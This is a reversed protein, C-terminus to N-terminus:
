IGDPKGHRQLRGRQHDPAYLGPPRRYVAGRQQRHLRAPRGDIYRAIALSVEPGAERAAAAAARMVELRQAHTTQAPSYLIPHRNEVTTEALTVADIVRKANVAAAAKGACDLLGREGTDNTYAYVSRTGDLVRVGAGHTRGSQVSEVTDNRMNLANNYM